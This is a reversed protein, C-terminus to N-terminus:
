PLKVTTLSYPELAITFSTGRVAKQSATLMASNKGYSMVTAIGHLVDGPLSVTVKYTAGPAKNILMVNVSGDCQRIAHVAVLDNSSTTDLLTGGAREYLHSLMQLGYYSPFPTNAPPEVAGNATTMGVSLIGYDGFGYSGYLAADINGDFPSNHIGWWDVNTVGNELWTTVQDALFLANVLSTTQKGPNYSVSNTETVMVQVAAAHAGCYKAIASKATAMMTPIDPTYSVPTSEGKDSSALLAADSEGTPGQAYWHLVVFDVAACAIPLVTDNWPQPSTASTQGDPWNGPATLVMGLKISPDVAKMAASYSVVGNAYITPDHAQHNVEWTAGYTGDGYVENGVEWYTIGYNHGTRSAGPYTPVPGSYHRGGRNAYRVWDAAEKATGSGYNVTIMAQARIAKAVAMFADFHASPTTGGQAPDDPTNSLWHYNDSTSGGPYRLTQVGAGRLLGPLEADVLHGDWAAANVGVAIPSLRGRNSRVDVSASAPTGASDVTPAAVLAEKSRAIPATEDNMAEPPADCAATLLASGAISLSLFKITKRSRDDRHIQM